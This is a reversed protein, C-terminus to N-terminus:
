RGSVKVRAFEIGEAESCFREMVLKALESESLDLNMEAVASIEIPAGTKVLNIASHILTSTPSATAISVSLKRRQFFLDDGDRTVACRGLKENLVEAIMSMLLRQVAITGRLDYDFLEVIFSMMRDSAIPENNIVDEIDVMESLNVKVAGCFSVISDGAIQFNKYAFHPSLQLGDYILDEKLFLSKM